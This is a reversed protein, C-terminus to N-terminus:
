LMFDLKSHFCQVDTFHCGCCRPIPCQYRCPSCLNDPIRDRKKKSYWLEVRCPSLCAMLVAGTALSYVHTGWLWGDYVAFFVKTKNSAPLPINDNCLGKRDQLFSSTFTHGREPKIHKTHPDRSAKPATGQVYRGADCNSRLEIDYMMEKVSAAWKYRREMRGMRKSLGQWM